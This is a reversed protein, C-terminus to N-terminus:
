ELVTKLSLTFALLMLSPVVMSEIYAMNKPNYTTALNSKALLARNLLIYLYIYTM